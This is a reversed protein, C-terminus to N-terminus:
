HSLLLLPGRFQPGQEVSSGVGVVDEIGRDHLVRDVVPEVPFQLLQLLGVCAQETSVAGGLPHASCRCRAEVANFVSDRQLTEVVGKVLPFQPGPM